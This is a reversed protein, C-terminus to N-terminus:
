VHKWRYEIIGSHRTYTRCKKGRAAKEKMAKKQADFLMRSFKTLESEVCIDMDSGSNLIEVISGKSDTDNDNPMTSVDNTDLTDPEDLVAVQLLLTEFM